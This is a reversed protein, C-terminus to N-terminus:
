FEANYNYVTENNRSGKKVTITVPQGKDHGKHGRPTICHGKKIKGDFSATFEFSWYIGNNASPRTTVEGDTTKGEMEFEELGAKEMHAIIASDVALAGGSLGEQVAIAQLQPLRKSDIKAPKRNKIIGKLFAADKDSGGQEPMQYGDKILEDLEEPSNAEVTDVRGGRLPKTVKVPVFQETDTQFSLLSGVPFPVVNFHKM